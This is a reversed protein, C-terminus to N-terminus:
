SFSGAVEINTNKTIIFLSYVMVIFPKGFVWSVFIPLIWMSQKSNWWGKTRWGWEPSGDRHRYHISKNSHLYQMTHKIVFIYIRLMIETCFVRSVLAVNNHLVWLWQSYRRTRTSYDVCHNNRTYFKFPHLRISRTLRRVSIIMVKKGDNMMWLPIETAEKLSFM